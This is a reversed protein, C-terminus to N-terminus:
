AMKKLLLIKETFDKIDPYESGGEKKILIKTIIGDKIFCNFYAGM